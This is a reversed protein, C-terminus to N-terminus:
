RMVEVPTPKSEQVGILPNFIKFPFICNRIRLSVIVFSRKGKNSERVGDASIQTEKLHELAREGMGRHRLLYIRKIDRLHVMAEMSLLRKNGTRPLNLYDKPISRLNKVKVIKSEPGDEEHISVSSFIPPIQRLARAKISKKYSATIQRTALLESIAEIENCFFKFLKEIANDSVRSTVKIEIIQRIIRALTTEEEQPELYPNRIPPIQTSDVEEVPITRGHRLDHQDPHDRDEPNGADEDSQLPDVGSITGGDEDDTSEKQPNIARRQFFRAEQAKRRARHRSQRLSNLAAKRERAEPTGWLSKPLRKSRKPGASSPGAEQTNM